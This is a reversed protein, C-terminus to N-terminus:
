HFLWGLVFGCAFVALVIGATLAFAGAPQQEALQALPSFWDPYEPRVLKVTPAAVVAPANTSAEAPKPAPASTPITKSKPRLLAQLADAVEAASQFRDAPKQSILRDIVKVLGSPAEPLVERLPTPQGSIRKGLREIPSDGPFPLRGTMLHFMACGLSYLDSRGDVDKGCAQEPSM